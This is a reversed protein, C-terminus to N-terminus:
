FDPSSKPNVFLSTQNPSKDGSKFPECKKKRNIASFISVKDFDEIRKHVSFLYIICM